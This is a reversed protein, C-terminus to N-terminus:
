EDGWSLQMKCINKTHPWEWANEIYKWNYLSIVGQTSKMTVRDPQAYVTGQLVASLFICNGKGNTVANPNEGREVCAHMHWYLLKFNCQLWSPHNGAIIATSRTAWVAADWTWLKGSCSLSVRHWFLFCFSVLLPSNLPLTSMLCTPPGSNMRLNFVVGGECITYSFSLLSFWLFHKAYKKSVSLLKM